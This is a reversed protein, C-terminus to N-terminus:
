ASIGRASEKASEAQKELEEAEQRLSEAAERHKEREADGESTKWSGLNGWNGSFLDKIQGSIYGLAGSKDKDTVETSAIDEASAKARLQRAKKELATAEADSLNASADNQGASTEYKQRQLVLDEIRNASAATGRLHAYKAQIIKKRDEADAATEDVGSLEEQEAADLKAAELERRAKVEMDILELSDNQAKAASAMKAALTDYKSALDSVSKALAKADAAKQLDTAKKEAAGFSETVKTIGAILATFLGAVGFGTLAKRVFGISREFGQMKQAANASAKAAENGMERSKKRIRELAQETQVGGNLDAGLKISIDVQESSQSM